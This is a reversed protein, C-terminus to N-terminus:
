LLERNFWLLKPTERLRIEKKMFTTTWLATLQRLYPIHGILRQTGLVWCFACYAILLLLINALYIFGHM